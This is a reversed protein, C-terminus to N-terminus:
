KPIKAPNGLSHSFVWCPASMKRRSASNAAAWALGWRVAARSRAVVAWPAEASCRRPLSGNAQRQKLLDAEVPAVSGLEGEVQERVQAAGGLEQAEVQVSGVEVAAPALVVAPERVPTVALVRAAEWVQAVVAALVVGVGVERAQAVAEVEVAPDLVVESVWAVAQVVRGRAAERSAALAWVAEPGQVGEAAKGSAAPNAQRGRAAEPVLAAPVQGAAALCEVPAAEAPVSAQVLEEEAVAM